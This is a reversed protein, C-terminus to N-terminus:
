SMCLLLWLVGVNVNLTITLKTIISTFICTMVYWTKVHQAWDGFGGLYQLCANMQQLLGNEM